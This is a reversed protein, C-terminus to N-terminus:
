GKAVTSVMGYVSLKRICNNGGDLIYITGKSDIAIAVKPPFGFLATLAKGDKYGEKSRGGMNVNNPQIVSNGAITTVKKDAIKIIRNLRLDAFIVDGKKNIVIDEPSMLEAKAIDGQIYLPSFERKNCLGALTTISGDKSLKKVCRGAGDSLYINGVSDVGIGSIWRTKLLPNNRTDTITTLMKDPSIRRIVYYDGLNDKNTDDREVVVISGDRCAKMYEISRFSGVGEPGDVRKTSFPIGFYQTMVNAPSLKWILSGDTFCLNDATDITMAGGKPWPPRSIGKQLDESIFSPKGDPSIKLVRNNYCNVILNDKSDVMVGIPSSPLKAPATQAFVMCSVLLPFLAFFTKMFIATYHAMFTVPSGHQDKRYFPSNRHRSNKTHKM